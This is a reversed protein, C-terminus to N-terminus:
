ENMIEKYLNKKVMIKGMTSADREKDEYFINVQVECAMTAFLGTEYQKLPLIVTDEDIDVGLEDLGKTLTVGAQSLTVKIDKYGELVGSTGDCYELKLPINATTYQYFLACDCCKDDM